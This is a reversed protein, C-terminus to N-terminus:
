QAAAVRDRISVARAPDNSAVADVNWRFLTELLEEEDAVWTGVRVGAEHAERVLDEGAEILAPTQPLM